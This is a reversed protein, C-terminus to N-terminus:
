GPKQKTEKIVGGILKRLRDLEEHRKQLQELAREANTVALDIIAGRAIRDLSDASNPSEDIFDQLKAQVSVIRDTDRSAAAQTAQNLVKQLYEAWQGTTDLKKKAM